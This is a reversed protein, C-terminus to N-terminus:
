GHRTVDPSGSPIAHELASERAVRVPGYIATVSPALIASGPRQDKAGRSWIGDRQRPRVEVALPPLRPRSM